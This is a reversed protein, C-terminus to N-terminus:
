PVSLCGACMEDWAFIAGDLLQQTVDLSGDIISLSEGTQLLIVEEGDVYVSCNGELCDVKISERMTEVGMVGRGVENIASSGGGFEIQFIRSGGGRMVLMRGSELYFITEKKNETRSSRPELASDVLLFQLRCGTDLYVSTTSLDVSNEENSKLALRTPEEAMLLVQPPIASLRGVSEYGGGVTEISASGSIMVAYGVDVLATPEEGRFQSIGLAILTFIIVFGAFAIPLTWRREKRLEGGPTQIVIVTLNDDADRGMALSILHRAAERPTSGEVYEAIATAAVFPKGDLPNSKTLGDSALLIRDNPLLIEGPPSNHEIKPTASAGLLHLQSQTLPITKGKRVLYAVCHGAHAFYLRDKRIAVATAAVQSEMESIAQSGVILGRVLAKGLDKINSQGVTEFVQAIIAEAAGGAEDAGEGDAVVALLVKQGSITRVYGIRARDLQANYPPSAGLQQELAFLRDEHDSNSM